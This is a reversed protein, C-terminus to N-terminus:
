SYSQTNRAPAPTKSMTGNKMIHKMAVEWDVQLLHAIDVVIEIINTDLKCKPTMNVSFVILGFM